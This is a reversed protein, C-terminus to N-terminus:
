SISASSTSRVGDVNKSAMEGRVEEATSIAKEFYPKAIAAVQERVRQGSQTGLFFAVGTAVAAAGAGVAIWTGASKGYDNRRRFLKVDNFLDRAIDSNAVAWAGGLLSAVSAAGSALTHMTDAKTKSSPKLSDVIKHATKSAAATHQKAMKKLMKKQARVKMAPEK